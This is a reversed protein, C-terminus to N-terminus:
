GAESVDLKGPRSAGLDIGLEAAADLVAKEAFQPDGMQGEYGHATLPLGAQQRIHKIVYRLHLAVGELANQTVTFQKTPAHYKLGSM